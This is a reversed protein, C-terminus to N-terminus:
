HALSALPTIASVEATPAGAATTCAPLYTQAGPLYATVMVSASSGPPTVRLQRYPAPCGGNGAPQDDAAVVAYASGGPALTVVPLQAPAQWAGFMTSQAHKLTTGHGASTLAVVSPWGTLQCASAGDNTFKLYGGAQGGLAGSNTIAIKLQSITCAGAAAGPSPSPSPTASPTATPGVSRGATAIATPVAQSGCGTLALACAATALGAGSALRWTRSVPGPATGPVGGTVRDGAAMFRM